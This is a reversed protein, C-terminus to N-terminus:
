NNNKIIYKVSKIEKSLSNINSNVDIIDKRIMYNQNMLLTDTRFSNDFSSEYMKYYMDQYSDVIKFLDKNVFYLFIGFVINCLFSLVCVTTLINNVKM